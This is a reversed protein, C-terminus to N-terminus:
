PERSRLPPRIPGGGWWNVDELFGVLLLILCIHHMLIMDETFLLLLRFNLRLKVTCKGKEYKGIM